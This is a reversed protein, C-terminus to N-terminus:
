ALQQLQILKHYLGQKAILEEHTGVETIRGQDM